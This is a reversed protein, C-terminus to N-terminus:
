RNTSASASSRFVGAAIERDCEIREAILSRSSRPDAAMLGAMCRLARRRVATPVRCRKSRERTTATRNPTRDSARDRRTSRIVLRPNVLSSDGGAGGGARAAVEGFGVADAVLERRLADDELVAGAARRPPPSSRAPPRFATADGDRRQRARTACSDPRNDRSRYRSGDGGIVPRRIEITGTRNATTAAIRAAAVGAAASPTASVKSSRGTNPVRRGTASCAAIVRLSSRPSTRWWRGAVPKTLSILRSPVSRGARIASSVAHSAAPM